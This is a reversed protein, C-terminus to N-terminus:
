YSEDVELNQLIVYGIIFLPLVALLGIRQSVLYTLTGVMLPGVFATSRGAFTFLGFGSGTKEHPLINSMMVRSASQLPGAITAVLLVSIFFQIKNQSLVMFLVCVILGIISSSIIKKSGYKDNLYGGFFSGIGAVFNGLLSLIMLEKITFNHVGSAYVGGGTILVVLADAYFLRAILFKGANTLGQEWIINKLNTFINIKKIETMNNTKFNMFIPISFIFFWVAIIFAIFRVHEFNDRNLDLLTNEPKLIYEIVFFLLPLAGIYGLAFGLGSVFGREEKKSFNSLLSHYFMQSIEYFLNSLFFIVLTYFIFEKTPEANWFFTTTFICLLTSIIFFIMRGNRFNDSTAGLLTGILAVSIGCIGATWQWYAAGLQPDGVIEKAFYPGFVFTIVLIIYPSNALDFLGYIYKKM